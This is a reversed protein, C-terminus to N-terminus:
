STALLQGVHNFVDQASQETYGQPNNYPALETYRDRPTASQQILRKRFKKGWDKLAVIADELPLQALRVLSHGSEVSVVSGFGPVQFNVYKVM